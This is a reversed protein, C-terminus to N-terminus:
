ELLDVELPKAKAPEPKRMIVPVTFRGKKLDAVLRLTTRISMMGKPAQVVLFMKKSGQLKVGIVQEYNWTPCPEGDGCAVVMPELSTYEIGWGVSGKIGVAPIFNLSPSLTVNHTRKVEQVVEKPYLDFAVPQRGSEDSHLEVSFQASDIQVSEKPRLSCKLQILYYDEKDLRSKVERPLESPSFFEEMTWKEPKGITATPPEKQIEQCEEQFSEYDGRTLTTRMSEHNLAPVLPAEWLVNEITDTTKLWM